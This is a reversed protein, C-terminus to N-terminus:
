LANATDTALAEDYGMALYSAKYGSIAKEKQLQALLEADKQAKEEAEQAKKTAEDLTNRYKNKWDAAESNVESIRKKLNEIEESQDKPMQVNKLAETLEDMTMGDKYSEGLLDKIDM